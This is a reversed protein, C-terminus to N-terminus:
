RQLSSVVSRLTRFCIERVNRNLASFVCDSDANKGSALAPTEGAPFRRSCNDGLFRFVPPAPANRYFVRNDFPASKVKGPNNRCVSDVCSDNVTEFGPSISIFIFRVLRNAQERHFGHRPLYKESALEDTRFLLRFLLNVGPDAGEPPASIRRDAHM